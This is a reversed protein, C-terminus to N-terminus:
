RKRARPREVRGDPAGERAQRVAVPAARDIPLEHHGIEGLVRSIAVRALSLVRASGTGPAAAGSGSGSGGVSARRVARRALREPARWNMTRPRPASALAM